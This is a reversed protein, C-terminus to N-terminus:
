ARKLAFLNLGAKNERLREKTAAPVEASAFVRALPTQAVGYASRLKGGTHQKSMLKLSAHFDNSLQGYPGKVLVKMPEVLDPNNYREYGFCQWVLTWNKQEVHANDDKKLPRSCAQLCAASAKPGM